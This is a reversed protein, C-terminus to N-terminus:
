GKHRCDDKCTNSLVRITEEATRKWSFLKAQEIGKGIYGSSMEHDKLLALMKDAIDNTNYPDCYLAAEGCREVLAPIHSAIVPCGCAMAEIPPLPSAEYLSAFVFASAGRYLEVLLDDNTTGKLIEVRDNVQIDMTRFIDAQVGVVKLVHPIRDSISLFAEVVRRINKLPNMGGVYLLYKQGPDVAKKQKSFVEDVGNQVAVTRSVAVPFQETLAKKESESVTIIADSVAIIRPIAVRYYRRFSVSYSEPHRLYALGHITTVLKTGSPKWFPAINGPCFLVDYKRAQMPLATQEWVHQVAKSKSRPMCIDYNFRLETFAKTLERAYRQVGTVLGQSLVRGDVLVKM